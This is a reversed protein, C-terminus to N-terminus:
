HTIIQKDYIMAVALEARCGKSEGWGPVLYIADCELLMKIDEGMYHSYSLDPEPCIDFPTVPDYGAMRLMHAHEQARLQVKEIDHGTIPLSIYVKKKQTM